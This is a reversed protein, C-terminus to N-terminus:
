WEFLVANAGDAAVADDALRLVRERRRVLGAIEDRDLSRRLASDLARADLARLRELPGRPFRYLPRFPRVFAHFAISNDIAVPRWDTGFVVNRVHRDTNFILYDFLRMAHMQEDARAQDAPPPAPAFRSLSRDVWAQLSGRKGEVKREVSPPVLGFGLLTDLVYAAVEHRYTDRYFGVTESGFTFQSKVRTDATKFVATVTRPGDRLEVRSSNTIGEGLPVISVVRGDRLVREVAQREAEVDAPLAAAMLMLLALM